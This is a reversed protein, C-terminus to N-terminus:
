NPAFPILPNLSDNCTGTNVPNTVRRDTRETSQSSWCGSWRPDPPAAAYLCRRQAPRLRYSHQCLWPHPKGGPGWRFVPWVRESCWGCPLLCLINTQIPTTVTFASRIFCKHFNKKVRFLHGGKTKNIVFRFIQSWNDSSMNEIGVEM